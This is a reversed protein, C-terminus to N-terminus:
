GRKMRPSMPWLIHEAKVAAGPTVEPQLPCLLSAEGWRVAQLVTGQRCGAACRPLLFCVQSPHCCGEGDCQLAVEADRPSVAGSRGGAPSSETGSLLCEHVAGGSSGEAGLLLGRFTEKCAFSWPSSSHM